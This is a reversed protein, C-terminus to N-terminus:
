EGAERARRADDLSAVTAQSRKIAARMKAVKARLSVLAPSRLIRSVDGGRDLAAFLQAMSEVEDARFTTAARGAGSGPINSPM